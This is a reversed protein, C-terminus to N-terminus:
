DLFYVVMDYVYEEQVMGWYNPDGSDLWIDVQWPDLREGTDEVERYGFDYRDNKIYLRTGLPFNDFNAAVTRSSAYTGAWTLSPDTYYAAPCVRRWSYSYAVGDGGTFWGGVGIYRQENVPEAVIEERELRRDFEEGNKKAVYYHSIKQGEAGAQITQTTGRPITDIGIDETEFPIAETVDEYVYEYLDISCATDETLQDWLGVSPQEGDALTIGRDALIQGVSTPRTEVVIPDRNYFSIRVEINQVPAGSDADDPPTETHPEEVPTEAVPEEPQGDPNQEEAPQNESTRDQTEDTGPPVTEAGDAPNASSVDPNDANEGPNATDTEGSEGETSDTHNEQEAGPDATGPEDAGPNEEGGSVTGSSVGEENPGEEGNGSTEAPDNGQADGLQETLHTDEDGAQTGRNRRSVGIGIGVAGGLVLVACLAAVVAVRVKKKRAAEERAKNEAAAKEREARIAEREATNMFAAPSVPPREGQGTQEPVDAPNIAPYEGTQTMAPNVAPYEGTQTMAPNVAPFEGTQTMPPNAPPQMGSLIMAPNVAPAGDTEQGPIPQGNYPIQRNNVAAQPNMADQANQAALGNQAAQGNPNVQGNQAARQQEERQRDARTRIPAATSAKSHRAGLIREAIEALNEPEDDEDGSLPAYFDDGYEGEDYAEEPYVEQEDDSAADWDADETYGEDYEPEEGGYDSEDGADDEGPEGYEDLAEESAPGASQSDDQSQTHELADAAEDYSAWSKEEEPVGENRERENEMM